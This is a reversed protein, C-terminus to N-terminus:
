QYLLPIARIEVLFWIVIGTAASSSTPSCAPSRTVTSGAPSPSSRIRRVVVVKSSANPVSVSV